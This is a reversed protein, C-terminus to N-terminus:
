KMKRVLPKITFEDIRRMTLWPAAMIEAIRVENWYKWDDYPASILKGTLKGSADSMLFKILDAAMEPPTGGTELQRKAEAQAKEGALLGASLTEELMHTNVAGPAIANVQINDAKIEEALTETLRVVAAKSAAYASYNPRPATAGGGSFNVIKGQHRSIMFPLVAKCCYFTGILNIQITRAWQIVDNETMLGIAGQIGAVNVLGDVQGFERITTTVMEQVSQWDAVDVALPSIRSEGVAVGTVNELHLGAAIVIAGAKVLSRVIVQGIGGGGGTVIIVKDSLNEYNPMILGITEKTLM